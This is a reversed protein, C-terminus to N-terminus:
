NTSYTVFLPLKRYGLDKLRKMEAEFSKFREASMVPCGLSGPVNADLHIGFDGREGGKDTTVVHPDIKYFNGRVGANDPMYIPTLDVEWSQIGARYEPPIPGGKQHFADIGQKNATSTTCVWVVHTRGKTIGDKRSVSRLVLRGESLNGTHRDLNMAFDLFYDIVTPEEIPTGENEILNLGAQWLEAEAKRRRELGPLTKGNARCYLLLAKPVAEWDSQLAKTITQFGTSGYFYAGLNYAFSILASQQYETMEAWRPIIQLKPLFEAKLTQLLLMTADQESALKDGKRVPRGNIRTVGYGVTWVNAPCLYAELRLGEFEKILAIAAEYNGTM